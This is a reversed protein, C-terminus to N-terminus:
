QLFFLKKARKPQNNSHHTGKPKSKRFASLITTVIESKFQAQSAPTKSKPAQNNTPNM